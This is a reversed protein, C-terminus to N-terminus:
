IVKGALHDMEHQIVRALFGKFEQEVEKNLIPCYYHIKVRKFRRVKTPPQLYEKGDRFIRLSLCGEKRAVIGGDRRVWRPNVVPLFEGHEDKYVFAQYPTGIQNAALGACQAAHYQATDTLDKVLQVLTRKDKQELSVIIGPIKLAQRDVIIDKVM